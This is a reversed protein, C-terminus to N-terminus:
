GSKALILAATLDEYTAHTKEAGREHVFRWVERGSMGYVIVTPIRDIDGFARRIDGSGDLLPFRPRTRHLFRAMRAPNKEGGFAEFLNIAVIAAGDGEIGALRNLHRFEDTCPPCWSAFFAVIVPGRDPIVGDDGEGIAPRDILLERLERWDAEGACAHIIPGFAVLVLVCFLRPMM